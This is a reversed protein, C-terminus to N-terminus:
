GWFCNQRDNFEISSANPFQEKLGIMTIQIRIELEELTMRSEVLKPWCFRLKIAAKPM